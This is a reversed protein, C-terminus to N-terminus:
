PTDGCLDSLELATQSIPLCSYGYGGDWCVVQAECDVSRTRPDIRKTVGTRPVAPTCAVLVLVILLVKNM